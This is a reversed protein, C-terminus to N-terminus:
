ISIRFPEPEHATKDNHWVILVLLIEDADQHVKALHEPKLKLVRRCLNRRRGQHM